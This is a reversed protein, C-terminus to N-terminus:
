GHHQGDQRMYPPVRMATMDTLTVAGPSCRGDWPWAAAAPPAAAPAGPIAHHNGAPPWLWALLRALLRSRRRDRAPTGTTGQPLMWPWPTSTIGRRGSEPTGDGRM